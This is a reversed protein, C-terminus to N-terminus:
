MGHFDILARRPPDPKEDMGTDWAGCTKSRDQSIRWPGAEHCHQTAMVGMHTFSRMNQINAAASRTAMVIQDVHRLKWVPLRRLSVRPDDHM